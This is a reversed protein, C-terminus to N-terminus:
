PWLTGGDTIPNQSIALPCTTPRRCAAWYRYFCLGALVATVGFPILPSLSLMWFPGRIFYNDIAGIRRYHLGPLDLGRDHHVHFDLNVKWNMAVYEYYEDVERFVRLLGSVSIWQSDRLRIVGDDASLYLGGIYVPDIDVNRSTLSTAWYALCAVSLAALGSGCWGFISRRWNFRFRTSKPGESM